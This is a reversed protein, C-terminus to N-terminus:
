VEPCIVHMTFLADCHYLLRVVVRSSDIATGLRYTRQTLDPSARSLDSSFARSTRVFCIPATATSDDYSSQQCDMVLLRHNFLSLLIM